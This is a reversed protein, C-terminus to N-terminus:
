YMVVFKVMKQSSETQLNLLYVGPVIGPLEFPVEYLDSNESEKVAILTNDALRVIKLNVKSIGSLKIRVTFSGNSPNPFLYLEEIDSPPRIPQKGDIKEGTSNYVTILQENEAVCLAKHAVLRIAYEGANKFVIQQRDSLQKIVQANESDIHWSISDPVPWSVDVIEVTDDTIVENPILFKASLLDKSVLVSFETSDTCGKESVVSLKYNGTQNANLRSTDSVKTNNLYWAYSAWSGPNIINQQGECLKFESPFAAITEKAPDELAINQSISCNNADAITAVYTAASLGQATNGSQGNDWSIAYPQTGGSCIIEASGDSGGACTPNVVAINDLTIADPQEMSVFKSVQCGHSDTVQVQFTGACLDNRELGTGSDDWSATYPAFSGSVGLRAQGNCLNACTIASLISEAAVMPTPESMLVTKTATCNHDDKVVINYRGAYLGPITLESPLSNLTCSYAGTGGQPTVVMSGDDYGSCSPEQVDIAFTVPAPTTLEAQGSAQCLNNDTVTVSYKGGALATATQGKQYNSWKYVYPATGGSVQATLSGNATNSCGPTVVLFSDVKLPKPALITFSGNVKCGNADTIEVAYSGAPVTVQLSNTYLEPTWKAAYSPRGNLMMLSISGNNEGVCKPQTLTQDFQLPLPNEVLVTDATQCGHADTLLVARKGANANYYVTGNATTGPWAIAYPSTGGLASVYIKGDTGGYCVPSIVSDTRLALAAPGSSIVVSKTFSCVKGQAANDFVTV